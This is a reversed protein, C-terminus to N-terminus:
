KAYVCVGSRGRPMGAGTRSGSGTATAPPSRGASSSALGGAQRFRRIVLATEFDHFCLCLTAPAASVNGPTTKQACLAPSCRHPLKRGPLVQWLKPREQQVCHLTNASMRRSQFFYSLGTAQQLQRTTLMQWGTHAIARLAVSWNEDTQFTRADTNEMM